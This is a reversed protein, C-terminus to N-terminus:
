FDRIARVWNNDDKSNTNIGFIFDFDMANYYNWETSSWYVHLALINAGSVSEINKNLIYRAHSIMCLQDIAPLYWDSYIGTGYNSNSYSSCLAAANCGCLSSNGQGNWTSTAGTVIHESSWQASQSLDILSVILGHQGTNDVWFVIGGGYLEGIYHSNTNGGSANIIYPNATTGIGAVTVNTGATVKTESGDPYPNGSSKSYLAYPVSLLQSTGMFVYNSGGVPDLEIKIFYPSNGWNITSFNGSVVSGNGVALTVLGFQNTTVAHTEKYVETGSTTGQLIAIRLSVAKNELPNGNNDRAIAQYSFSEPSQAWLDPILMGILAFTLILYKM